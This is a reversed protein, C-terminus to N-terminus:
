ADRRPGPVGLGAAAVAEEPRNFWRFRVAKGDRITWVYGHRWAVPFGSKRGRATVRAIVLVEDGPGDIFETPEVVVDDYSSRIAGFADPGYRVGPEVADPPNM